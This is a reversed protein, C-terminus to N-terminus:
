AGYKDRLADRSLGGENVPKTEEAPANKSTAYAVWKERSDNNGPKANPEESAPAPTASVRSQRADNRAQRREQRQAELEEAQQPTLPNGMDDFTVRQGHPSAADAEKSGKAAVMGKRVQKDLDDENVGEPLTAGEYYGQIVDSGVDDKVRVTIYPATVVYGSDAATKDSM